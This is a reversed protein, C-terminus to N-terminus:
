AFEFVACMQEVCTDIIGIRIKGAEDIVTAIEFEILAPARIEQTQLVNVVDLQGFTRKADTRLLTGNHRGDEAEYEIYPVAAGRGVVLSRAFSNNDENTEDVVGTADATATLAAGGSTATWDGSIAVNATAGAAIAGTTGNLTTGGQPGIVSGFKSRAEGLMFKCRAATYDRLWNRAFVDSLLSDETRDTYVWILVSEPGTINRIIELRHDSPDWNFNINAGFMRGVLEQFGSFLEYTALGGNSVGGGATMQAAFAAGFPDFNLGTGSSTGTTGRRFIQKVLSVENPLQYVNQGVQLELFLYRESVSNSSRVRYRDLALDFALEYHDATLGTRVMGEGLLLRVERIIKERLKM